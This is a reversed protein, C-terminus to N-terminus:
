NLLDFSFTAKADAETMPKGNVLVDTTTPKEDISSGKVFLVLPGGPFVYTVVVQFKSETPTEIMEYEGHARLVEGSPSKFLIELTGVSHMRGTKNPKEDKRSFISRGTTQSTMTFKANVSRVNAATVINDALITHSIEELYSMSEAQVEGNVKTSKTALRKTNSMKLPCGEGGITRTGGYSYDGTETNETPLGTSPEFKCLRKSEALYARGADNLKAVDEKRDSDTVFQNLILRMSPVHGSINKVVALYAAKDTESLSKANLSQSRLDKTFSTPVDNGAAAAAGGDSKNCATALTALLSLALLTNQNFSKMNNKM